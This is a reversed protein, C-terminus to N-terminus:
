GDQLRNYLLLDATFSGTFCVQHIEDSRNCVKILYFYQKKVLDRYASDTVLTLAFYVPLVSKYSM